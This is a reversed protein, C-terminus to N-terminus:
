EDRDDRLPATVFDFLLKGVAAGLLASAGVFIISVIVVIALTDMFNLGSDFILKGSNM